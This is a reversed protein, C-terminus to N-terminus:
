ASDKDRQGLMAAAKQKALAHTLQRVAALDEPAELAFCPGDLDMLVTTTGDPNIVRLKVNTVDVPKM